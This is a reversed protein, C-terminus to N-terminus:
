RFGEDEVMEAPRNVPRRGENDGKVLRYYGQLGSRLVNKREGEDYGSAGMKDMLDGLIEGHRGTEGLIERQIGIDVLTEM